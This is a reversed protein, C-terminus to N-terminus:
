NRIKITHAASRDVLLDGEVEGDRFHLLEHLLVKDRVIAHVVDLAIRDVDVHLSRSTLGHVAVNFQFFLGDDIGANFAELLKYGVTLSRLHAVATDVDFLDALTFQHLVEKRSGDANMPILLSTNRDHGLILVLVRLAELTEHRVLLQATQVLGCFGRTTYTLGDGLGFRTASGILRGERALTELADILVHDAQEELHTWDGVFKLIFTQSKATGM